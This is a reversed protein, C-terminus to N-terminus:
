SFRDQSDGRPETRRLHLFDPDETPRKVHRWAVRPAQRACRSSWGYQADGSGLKLSGRAGPAESAPWSQAM